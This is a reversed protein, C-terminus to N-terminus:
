VISCVFIIVFYRNQIKATTQVILYALLFLFYFCKQDYEWTEIVLVNYWNANIYIFTLLLMLGFLGCFYLKIM